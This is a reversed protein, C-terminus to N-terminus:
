RRAEPYHQHAHAAVVSRWRRTSGENALNKALLDSRGLSQGAIWPSDHGVPVSRMNEPRRYLRDHSSWRVIRGSGDALWLTINADNGLLPRLMDLDAALQDSHERQLQAFNSRVTTWLGSARAQPPLYGEDSLASIERIAQAADSHDQLLVATVGISGM